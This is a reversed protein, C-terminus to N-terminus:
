REGTGNSTYATIYLQYNTNPQLGTLKTQNLYPDQIKPEREHLDSDNFVKYSINYGLHDTDDLPLDWRILLARSGLPFARCQVINPLKKPILDSIKRETLNVNVYFESQREEIIKLLFNFRNVDNLFIKKKLKNRNSEVNVIKSYFYKQLFLSIEISSPTKRM